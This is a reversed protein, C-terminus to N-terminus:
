EKSNNMLAKVLQTSIATHISEIRSEMIAFTSEDGILIKKISELERSNESIIRHIKIYRRLMNNIKFFLYIISILVISFLIIIYINDM